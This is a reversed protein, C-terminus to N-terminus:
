PSCAILTAPVAIALDLGPHAVAAAAIRDLDALAALDGNMKWNGAVLRRRMGKKRRDSSQPVDSEQADFQGPLNRAEVM